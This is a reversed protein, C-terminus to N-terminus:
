TVKPSCLAVGMRSRLLRLQRVRSSWLIRSPEFLLWPKQSNESMHGATAKCSMWAKKVATIKCLRRAVKCIQTTKPKLELFRALGSEFGGDTVSSSLYGQSSVSAPPSFSFVQYKRFDSVQPLLPTRVTLTWIVLTRPLITWLRQPACWM